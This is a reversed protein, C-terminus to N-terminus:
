SKQSEKKVAKTTKSVKPQKPHTYHLNFLTKLLYRQLVTPPRNQKFYIGGKGSAMPMSTGSSPSFVLVNELHEYRNILSQASPLVDKTKLTAKASNTALSDITKTVSQETKYLLDKASPTLKPLKM